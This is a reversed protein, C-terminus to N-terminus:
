IKLNELLRSGCLAAKRLVLSALEAHSTQDETAVECDEDHYIKSSRHALDLYAERGEEGDEGLSAILGTYNYLVANLLIRCMRGNGDGFPHICVFQISFWAALEFPDIETDAKSVWANFDKVLNSMYRPVAVSRIFISKKRKSGLGGGSAAAIEYDRYKGAWDQWPRDESDEHGTCLIRHTQRILDESLPEEEAIYKELFFSLARAHQAVELRGRHIAAVDPGNSTQGLSSRGQNAALGLGPEYQETKEIADEDRVEEGRFVKQCIQVTEDYGTGAWEIFNSGFITRCLEVEMGSAVKEAHGDGSRSRIKNILKTLYDYQKDTLDTNEKTKFKNTRPLTTTGNLFLAGQGGASKALRFILHDRDIPSALASLHGPRATASTSPDSYPFDMDPLTTKPIPDRTEM